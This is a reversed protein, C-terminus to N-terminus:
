ALAATRESSRDCCASTTLEISLCTSSRGIVTVLGATTPARGGRIAAGSADGGGVCGAWGVGFGAAGARGRWGVMRVIDYEVQGTRSAHIPLPPPQQRSHDVLDRKFDAM